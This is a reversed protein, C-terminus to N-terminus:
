LIVIVTYSPIMELTKFLKNLCLIWIPQLYINNMIQSKQLAM